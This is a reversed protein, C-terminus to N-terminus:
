RYTATGNLWDASVRDPRPHDPVFGIALILACLAVAIILGVVLQQRVARDHVDNTPYYAIRAAMVVVLDPMAFSLIEGRSAPHDFIPTFFVGLNVITALGLGVWPWAEGASDWGLKAIFVLCAAACVVRYSTDFPVGFVDQMEMAMTVFAVIGVMILVMLGLRRRVSYPKNTERDSSMGEAYRRLACQCSSGATARTNVHYYVRTM